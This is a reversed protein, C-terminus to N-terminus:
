FISIWKDVDHGACVIKNKSLELIKQTSVEALLKNGGPLKTVVPAGKIYSDGTFIYENDYYTICSDNHGPTYIVTMNKQEFLQIIDGDKLLCIRDGKFKIPLEHYKSLNLKDSYLMEKGKANTYVVMNPYVSLLDNVGAIHDFHAHTLLVGNVESYKSLEEKVLLFDGIDVLFCSTEGKCSIVYTNSCLTRGEIKKVQLM